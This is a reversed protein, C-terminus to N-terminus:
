STGDASPTVPFSRGALQYLREMNPRDPGDKAYGPVELYIPCAGLAPHRVFRALAEAGIAGDGLNEHRDKNSGFPAKSDNLHVAGLRDLGVHHDFTELMAELGDVTRLDHGATFVHATDICAGLNPPAGVRRIMEGLEEFTGGLTAGAGASTEFLLQAAGDYADLIGAFVECAREVAEARDGSRASGLHTVVARAGLLDAAQLTALLSRATKDRLEPDESGPNVLYIAHIVIPGLGAGACADRFAAAEDPKCAPPRWMQPSSAFIQVAEAGISAARTPITKLGGAVHAGLRVRPAPAVTTPHADAALLDTQM